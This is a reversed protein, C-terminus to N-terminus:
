SGIRSPSGTGSGRSAQSRAEVQEETLGYLPEIRIGRLSAMLYLQGRHHAEHEVMSRLWKWVTIRGGAPTECHSELDEVSLASFIELTSYGSCLTRLSRTPAPLTL